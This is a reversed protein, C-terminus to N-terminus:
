QKFNMNQNASVMKGQALRPKNTTVTQFEHMSEYEGDEGTRSTTQLAEALTHGYDNFTTLTITYLQYPNQGEFEFSSKDASVNHFVEVGSDQDTPKYSFLCNYSENLRL